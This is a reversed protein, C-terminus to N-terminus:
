WRWWRRRPQEPQEAVSVPQEPVSVLTQETPTTQVQEDEGAPKDMPQQQRPAELMRLAMSLDRAAAEATAAIREAAERRVREVMLQAELERIREGGFDQVQETPMTQAVTQPDIPTWGVALLDPLPIKWM